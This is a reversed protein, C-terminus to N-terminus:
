PQAKRTWWADLAAQASACADGPVAAPTTLIEIALKGADEAQQRAAEVKPAADQQRKTAQASLNKVGDGCAKAVGDAQKTETTAVVADDRKGLYAKGLFANGALSIALLLGLVQSLSM